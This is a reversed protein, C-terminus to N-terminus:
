IFLEMLYEDVYENNILLEKKLTGTINFGFSKYISIAKGQSANVLLNIKRIESNAKIYNLIENFLRKGLGNKRSSPEVYFWVISAVHKRRKKSDFLVGIMAIIKKNRKAVLMHANISNLYGFLYNQWWYDTNSSYDSLDSSFAFPDTELGRLMLHKVGDFDEPLAQLIEYSEM